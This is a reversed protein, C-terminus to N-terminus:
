LGLHINCYFLWFVSKGAHVCACVCVWACVFIKSCIEITFCHHVYLLSSLQHQEWLSLCELQRSLVQTSFFLTTRTVCPHHSQVSVRIPVHGVYLYIPLWVSIDVCASLSLDISLGESNFEAANPLLVPKCDPSTDDCIFVGGTGNRQLPASVVFRHVSCYKQLVQVKWKKTKLMNLLAM